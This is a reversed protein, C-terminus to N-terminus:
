PGRSWSDSFSRLCSSSFFFPWVLHIALLIPISLRILMKLCSKCSKCSKLYFLTNDKRAFGTIFVLRTLQQADKKQAFGWYVGVNCFGSRKLTGAALTYHPVPRRAKSRVKPLLPEPASLSERSTLAYRLSSRLTFVMSFNPRSEQIM